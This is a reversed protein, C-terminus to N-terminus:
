PGERVLGWSVLIRRLVGVVVGGVVVVWVEMRVVRDGRVGWRVVEGVRCGRGAGRGM